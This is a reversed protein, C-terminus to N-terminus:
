AAKRRRWGIFGFVGLGAAMLPLAAPEPVAALNSSSFFSPLPGQTSCGFAGTLNTNVVQVLPSAGNAAWGAYNTSCSLAESAIPLNGLRSDNADAFLALTSIFGSGTSQTFSIDFLGSIVNGAEDLDLTVFSGPDVDSPGIRLGDFPETNSLGSLAFYADQAAFEGGVDGFEAAAFLNVNPSKVGVFDIDLSGIIEPSNDPNNLTYAGAGVFDVNFRAFIGSDNAGDSSEGFLNVNFLCMNRLSGSTATDCDAPNIIRPTRGLKYGTVNFGGQVLITEYATFAALDLSPSEYTVTLPVANAGTQTALALLVSAFITLKPFRM